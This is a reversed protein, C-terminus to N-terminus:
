LATATELFYRLRQLFRAALLGDIARHDCSLTVRLISRPFFGGGMVVLEEKAAGVALIAGEPPNIIATFSEVGFMGLNSITFTGKGSGVLKGNQASRVIDRTDSAVTLLDREQAGLLVPVVLGSDSGVAIGINIDEPYEIHGDFVRCNVGPEDLLALTVARVVLDNVTIKNGAQAHAAKIALAQTIDIAVTTYFHPITSKSQQLASAIAGRMGELPVIEPPAEAPAPYPKTLSPLPLGMPAGMVPAAGASAGNTAPASEVDRRLIRGGPGTGKLSELRVGREAAVKRAVPSAFIRRGKADVPAAPVMAPAITAAQAQAIPAAAVPTPAPAPTAAAASPRRPQTRKKPASAKPAAKPPPPAAESEAEAKAKDDAEKRLGDFDVDEDAGGIIGVAALVLCSEGEAIFIKRLVGDETAEVELNAKDTEIEMVPDGRRVADGEKKLWSVIRGETMSQGAKPM